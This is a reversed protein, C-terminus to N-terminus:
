STPDPTPFPPSTLKPLYIESRFVIYLFLLFKGFFLM